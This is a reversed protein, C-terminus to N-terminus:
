QKNGTPQNDTARLRFTVPITYKVRVAKGGQKGPRWRPMSTIVRIAEKDLSPDVSEVVEVDSVSGDREVVFTTIVRGQIGNEMAVVPYKVNTSLFKMLGAAGGPFSPMQEVVDFVKTEETQAQTLLCFFGLLIPLLIRKM